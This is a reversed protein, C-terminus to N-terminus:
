HRFFQFLAKILLPFASALLFGVMWILVNLNGQIGNVKLELKNIDSKLSTEVRMLDMKTAANNDLCEALADQQVEAFTEAQKEPIGCAKLKKVFRLTDFHTMTTASM